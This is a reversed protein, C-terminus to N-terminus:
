IPSYKNVLQTIQKIANSDGYIKIDNLLKIKMNKNALLIAISNQKHFVPLVIPLYTAANVKLRVVFCNEYILMTVCYIKHNKSIQMYHITNNRVLM